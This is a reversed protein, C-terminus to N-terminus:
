PGPALEAQGSTGWAAEGQEAPPRAKLPLRPWDGLNQHIRLEFEDFLFFCRNRKIPATLMIRWGGHMM